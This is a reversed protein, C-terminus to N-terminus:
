NIRKIGIVKLDATKYIRGITKKIPMIIVKKFPGYAHILRTKDLVIAVHGKWFILDNKKANKLKIKKKFFRIQQSADRPCFKNNFNLCLQVLGSCDVGSFHKGGWKYKINLFKKINKFPNKNIYNIKKVNKEKIWCNELKYFNKKKYLVNIKSGYSLSQKFKKKLNPEKYLSAKLVCIKHTNKMNSSFKKNKIFGKYNDIDNKIKIWSRNQQLKKFTEGYLIQTVIESKLSKKKYVNIFPLNNKM